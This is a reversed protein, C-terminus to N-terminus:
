AGIGSSPIYYLDDMEGSVTITSSSESQVNLDLSTPKFNKMTWIGQIVDSVGSATLYTELILDFAVITPNLLIKETGAWGGSAPKQTGGMLAALQDPDFETFLEISVSHEAPQYSVKKNTDGIRAVKKSPVSAKPRVSIAQGIVKTAKKLVYVSGEVLELTPMTVPSPSAM